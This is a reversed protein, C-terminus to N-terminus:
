FWRRDEGPGEVNGVCRGCLEPHGAHSGVDDRRHWCRVCKAAGSVTASVWADAGELETLVADAPQGGALDLRVESTIFFFRLESAAPAYRAVTAEDAHIALKAELAAGILEAKRMGELVRSATDRIALLDAWWRRQEPSNQTAALGDYWTEFLVSDGREGPLAQWIEEATFSLIPALWRVLAEVIRYMASQASRRGRSDTPMTYLRDKTIDLYLAGLENTCFNQIRAVVEPYDYREYAATVAQQVDYAQQVAWQDLLVSGQVPLLHRAPDFGDLNGLLFKATNRIRRYTDSVRKLIEDSVTMENRYDASAVWLRLVDAGLTDMVKQPAVVNGLSKSMKRGNADVAFGHTLVEDYPARGHIASSTLLSSQFWGRHQDSGELYMVKYHSATGQQLEPRQGIVAYHTVGSDFWVDLVDTVKEYDNADAGLLEAADLTFWADIGGQEVKQAVQELLAVSDPHPEQTAKHVFLAIPVGWTRQRSICWDPRGAVMGAIREEGWGPVWRVNKISTLATERLQAQEMSIFWQPTTRYIVPTKHRWCNPYSHEIKAFALLVGRQRLLDVIADNAKWIHMGGLVLPDAAPTDIRYTGRPEIYNLLGIGYERAVVFDEVGHDPSTHVAGTGDEASVHEGLIVPVERPYFPHRLKLGELAKGEVHGLVAAQELGYRQAAKDVLASAVVLLVSRGGRSPGEILAYELDAGLSVAQSEPLTWPTTTWIPIAAIADGAEVGFAAVLANPDVADYAVDVAPSVKDGYEIEAEALASACDFCWYVPKAGRVVHGNSVIRALARLMDAEFRFDMSRYPHDWDGLVGLRKFDARQADVQETAYERCKQRFAAADLKDGPKGFKKEVAIEIPLGHCDWGPVYPARQGALLKSKVVIDKLIKNVAHGIHIPGNAYPPGDHLVFVSDRHATKQQIQAYRDVRAWEALWGPERKPLDGRMPFATQPLNITNKYDHTM